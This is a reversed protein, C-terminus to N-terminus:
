AGPTSSPAICVRNRGTNKAQYLAKDAEALATLCDAGALSALGISITVAIPEAGPAGHTGLPTRHSAVAHRIREALHKAEDLTAHRVLVAFEEGGLRGAYDCARLHARCARCIIRCGAAM